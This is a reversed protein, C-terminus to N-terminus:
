VCGRCGQGPKWRPCSEGRTELRSGLVGSLCGSVGLASCCAFLREVLELNLTWIGVGVKWLKSAGLISMRQTGRHISLLCICAFRRSVIKLINM